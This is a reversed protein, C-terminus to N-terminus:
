AALITRKAIMERRTTTDSNGCKNIEEAFPLDTHVFWITRSFLDLNPQRDRQQRGKRSAATVHAHVSSSPSSVDARHHHRLRRHDNVAAAKVAAANIFPSAIHMTKTM